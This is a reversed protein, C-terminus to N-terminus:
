GSESDHRVEDVFCLSSDGAVLGIVSMNIIWMRSVRTRVNRVHHVFHIRADVGTSVVAVVGERVGPAFTM